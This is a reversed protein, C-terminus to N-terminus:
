GLNSNSSKLDFHRTSKDKVCELFSVVANLESFHTLFPASGGGGTSSGALKDYM